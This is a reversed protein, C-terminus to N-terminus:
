KRSRLASLQVGQPVDLEKTAQGVVLRMTQVRLAEPASILGLPLYETMPFATCVNEEHDAADDAGEDMPAATTLHYEAIDASAFEEALEGGYIPLRPRGAHDSDGARRKGTHRGPDEALGYVPM